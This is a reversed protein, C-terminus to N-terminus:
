GIINQSCDPPLFAVLEQGLKQIDQRL